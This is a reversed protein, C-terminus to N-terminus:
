SFIPNKRSWNEEPSSSVDLLSARRRLELQEARRDRLRDREMQAVVRQSLVAFHGAPGILTLRPKIPPDREEEAKGGDSAAAADIGLLRLQHM